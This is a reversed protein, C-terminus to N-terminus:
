QSSGTTKIEAPNTAWDMVSVVILSVTNLASPVGAPPVRNIEQGSNLVAPPCATAAPVVLTVKPAPPANDTCNAGFM